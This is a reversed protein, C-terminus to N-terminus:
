FTEQSVGVNSMVTTGPVSSSMGNDIGSCHLLHEKPNNNINTIVCHDNPASSFGTIHNTHDSM